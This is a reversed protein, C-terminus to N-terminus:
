EPPLIGWKTLRTDPVGLNRAMTAILSRDYDSLRPVQETIETELRHALLLSSHKLAANYDQIIEFLQDAPSNPKLAQNQYGPQNEHWIEVSDGRKILHYHPTKVNDIRSNILSIEEFLNEILKDRPDAESRLQQRGRAHTLPNSVTFGPTEIADLQAQLQSKLGEFSQFDDRDFFITRYPMNDFPLRTGEAAIHIVPLALAHRVGLEYFVNANLFTLDAICVEDQEIHAFISDNIPAPDAIKDARALDYGRSTFLPEIAGGWVWDAHRREASGASGIPTIMFCRKKVVEGSKKETL